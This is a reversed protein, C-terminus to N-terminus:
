LSSFRRCNLTICVPRPLHTIQELRKAIQPMSWRDNPSEPWTHAVIVAGLETSCDPPVPMRYGEKVRTNVEAVTMGPYPETGQM